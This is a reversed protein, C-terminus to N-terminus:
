NSHHNSLISILILHYIVNHYTNEFQQIYLYIYIRKTVSRWIDVNSPRITPASPIGQHDGMWTSAVLWELVLWCSNHTCTHKHTNQKTQYKNYRDMEALLTIKGTIVATMVASYNRCRGISWKVDEQAPSQILKLFYFIFRFFNV